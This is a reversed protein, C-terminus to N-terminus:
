PDIIVAGTGTFGAYKTFGTTNQALGNPPVPGFANHEIQCPFSASLAGASATYGICGATTVVNNAGPTVSRHLNKSFLANYVENAATAGLTVHVYPRMFASGPTLVGGINSDYTQSLFRNQEVIMNRSRLVNMHWSFNTDFENGFVRANMSPGEATDFMLGGMGGYQGNGVILNEGIQCQGTTSRIGGGRCSSIVSYMLDYCGPSQGAGFDIGWGGAANIWLQSLRVSFDQYYDSIPSIDSRLSAILGRGSVSDVKVRDISVDWAGTLQIGNLGTRGPVQSINFHSLESDVTYRGTGGSTDYKLIAGNTADGNYDAVFGGDLMGDGFISLGRQIGALNATRAIDQTVRFFYGGPLYLKKKNTVCDAICALVATTDDAGGGVAYASNGVANYPADLPCLWPLPAM